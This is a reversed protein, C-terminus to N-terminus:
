SFPLKKLKYKNQHLVKISHKYTQLTVMAYIVSRSSHELLLLYACLLSPMVFFLTLWLQKHWPMIIDNQKPALPFMPCSAKAACFLTIDLGCHRVTVKRNMLRKGRAVALMAAFQKIQTLWTRLKIQVHYRLVLAKIKRKIICHAHRIDEHKLASIFGIVVSALQSKGVEVNLAFFNFHYLHISVSTCKEENIHFQFNMGLKVTYIQNRKWM